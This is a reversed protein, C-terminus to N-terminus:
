DPIFSSGALLVHFLYVINNLDVHFHLIGGKYNYLPINLETPPSTVQHKGLIAESTDTIDVSDVSYLRRTRFCFVGTSDIHLRWIM